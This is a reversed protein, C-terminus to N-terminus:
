QPQVDFVVSCIEGGDRAVTAGVLRGWRVLAHGDGMRRRFSYRKIKCPGVRVLVSGRKASLQGTLELGKIESVKEFTLNPQM